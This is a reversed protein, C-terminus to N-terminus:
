YAIFHLRLTKAENVLVMRDSNLEEVTFTEEYVPTGNSVNGKDRLHLGHPALKNEYVPNGDADTKVTVDGQKDTVTVPELGLEEATLLPDGSGRANHRPEYIRLTNGSNTFRYLYTGAGAGQTQMLNGIYGWFVKKEVYDASTGDALNDVQRLYWWNDLDGNDSSNIECSALLIFFLCAM